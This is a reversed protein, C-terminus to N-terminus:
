TKILSKERGAHLSVKPITCNCTGEKTIQKKGKQELYVDSDCWESQVQNPHLKPM